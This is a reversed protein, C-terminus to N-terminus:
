IIGQKTTSIGQKTTSVCIVTTVVKGLQAGQTTKQATLEM